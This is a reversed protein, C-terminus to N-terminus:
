GYQQIKWSTACVCVVSLCLISKGIVVRLVMIRENVRRVDIVKDTWKEAVLIGVGGTGDKCGKWYFKFRNGEGGIM